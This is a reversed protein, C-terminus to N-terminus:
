KKPTWHELCRAEYMGNSGVDVRNGTDYLKQTKAAPQGCTNCYSRLKVVEDSMALMNASLAFPMGSSDQDLGSVVVHIGSLIWKKIYDQIEPDFFQIEDIFITNMNEAEQLVTNDNFINNEDISGLHLYYCEFKHGTHTVIEKNKSYRNDIAPKIVMLPLNQHNLWLIRKMLESTKGAYMPGMISTLTGIM